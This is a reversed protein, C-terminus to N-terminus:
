DTEEASTKIDMPKYEIVGAIILNEGDFEYPVTYETGKRDSDLYTTITKGNAIYRTKEGTFNENIWEYYYGDITYECIKETEVDIWKGVLAKDIAAPEGALIIEDHNNEEPMNETKQDATKGCSCLILILLFTLYILKKM